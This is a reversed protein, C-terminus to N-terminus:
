RGFLIIPDFVNPKMAAWNTDNPNKSARVELHVHTAESNGTNGCTGVRALGDLTQGQKVEMTHLHAYAVYLHAGALAKSALFDRTSSPLHENLYRVIVWNGYGYGWAPDAFIKADGLTFGQSLTNPKDPTCKTCAMTMTVLGGAPGCYIPEGTKAGFDWGLHAGEFGRVWWCDKMPRLYLDTPLGVGSCDGECSLNTERTWAEQGEFAIRMWRYQGGGEEQRVELISVRASRSLPKGEAYNTSPGGRTRASASTIVVGTCDGIPKSVVEPKALPVTETSSVPETSKPLPAAEKVAPIFKDPVAETSSQVVKKEDRRLTFAFTRVNIVTYGLLTGDGEIDLLDDRAWGSNGDPFTLKLWQYIKGQYNKGDTDPRADVVILGSMGVPAKLVLEFNTGPGSRINIETLTPTEPLGRIIAKLTM